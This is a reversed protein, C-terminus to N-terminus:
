HFVDTATIVSNDSRNFIGMLVNEAPNAAFFGMIQAYTYAGNDYVVCTDGKQNITVRSDNHSEPTAESGDVIIFRADLANDFAIQHCTDEVDANCFFVYETHRRRLRPTFGLSQRTKDAMMKFLAATAKAYIAVKVPISIWVSLGGYHKRLFILMAQYFVHVYSFSTKQTSEGKYHVIDVPLYWNHYGAKILRYSMDIDEGYMFFDEDLLGTKAMAERRIMFFAGSVVEIQAPKDWPLYSMYYKGFRRSQPYMACLGCMKYFATMPTPLGRRSEMARKGTSTHMCVGLGGADAHSDMFAVCEKIVDEGVITDPNLLLVYDSDTQKIVINNARAFGLNHNSTIFTVDRHRQRLYEVSGDRSHNDIVYVKGDVGHMAKGISHLCQDLYFKVNYSVIVVTLKM